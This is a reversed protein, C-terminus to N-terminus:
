PTKRRHSYAPSRAMLDDAAERLISEALAPDTRAVRAARRVSAAADDLGAAELRDAIEAAEAPIGERSKAIM